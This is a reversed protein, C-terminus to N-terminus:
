RHISWVILGLVTAVATTVILLTRLTFRWRLRATWPATILLGSVLAGSWYPISFLSEAALTPHLGRSAPYVTFMWAPDRGLPPPLPPPNQFDTYIAGCNSRVEVYSKSSARELVDFSWYSRVWLVLFLAAVVGWVVSWAIRLKRFRM